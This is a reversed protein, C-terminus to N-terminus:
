ILKGEEWECIKVAALEFTQQSSLVALVCMGMSTGGRLGLKLEFVKQPRLYFMGCAAGRKWTLSLPLLHFQCWTIIRTARRKPRPCVCTPRALYRFFNIKYFLLLCKLTIHWRIVVPLIFSFRTGPVSFPSRLLSGFHLTAYIFFASLFSILLLLFLRCSFNSGAYFACCLLIIIFHFLFQINRIHQAWTVLLEGCTRADSQSQSLSWTWMWSWSASPQGFNVTYQSCILM